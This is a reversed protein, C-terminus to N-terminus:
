EVLTRDLRSQTDAVNVRAGDPEHLAKARARIEVHLQVRAGAVADV